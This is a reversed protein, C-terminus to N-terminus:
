DGSCYYSYHLGGNSDLEVEFVTGIEFNQCYFSYFRGPMLKLSDFDQTYGENKKGLFIQSKANEPDQVVVNGQKLLNTDSDYEAFNLSYIKDSSRCVVIANNEPEYTYPFKPCLFCGNLVVSLGLIFLLPILKATRFKLTSM